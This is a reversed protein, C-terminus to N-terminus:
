ERKQNEHGTRPRGKGKYAQMLLLCLIRLWDRIVILDDLECDTM